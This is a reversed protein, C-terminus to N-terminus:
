NGVGFMQLLYPLIQQLQASYAAGNNMGQQQFNGLLQLATLPNSAALGGNAGTLRAWALQPIIGALAAAQQSNQNNYTNANTEITPLQAQLGIANAQNQNQQAIASTAVNARATTGMQGYRQNNALIAAQVPGSSPGMGQQAFRAIINQNGQDRAAMIPDFAQTQLLSMQDPTYAPGNLRQVYSKIADLTPQLDPAQYPTNLKGIIGNLLQEYQQTAPDSFVSTGQYSSPSGAAGGSSQPAPQNSPSPGYGYQQLLDAVRANMPDNKFTPDQWAANLEAPNYGKGNYTYIVGPNTSPVPVQDATTAPGGFSAPLAGTYNPGLLNPSATSPSSLTQLQGGPAQELSGLGNLGKGNWGGSDSIQSPDLVDAM